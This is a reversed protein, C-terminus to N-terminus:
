ASRVGSRIVSAWRSALAGGALSLLQNREFAAVTQPIDLRQHAGRSEARNVAALVVAEASQLMAKLEYWDQLDLNFIDGPSIALDQLADRYMRLTAQAKRLNEGSRFPGAHEWMLDQISNQV